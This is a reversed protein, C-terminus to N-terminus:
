LRPSERGSRAARPPSIIVDEGGVRNYDFM